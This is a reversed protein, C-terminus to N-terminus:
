FMIITDDDDAIKTTRQLGKVFPYALLVFPILGAWGLIKYTAIAGFIYAIYCALNMTGFIIFKIIKITNESM